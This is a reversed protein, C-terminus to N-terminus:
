FVMKNKTLLRAFFVMRMCLVSEDLHFSLLADSMDWVTLECVSVLVSGESDTHSRLDLAMLGTLTGLSAPDSM